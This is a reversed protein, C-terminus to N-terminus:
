RKTGMMRLTPNIIDFANNTANDDDWKSNFCKVKVNTTGSSEPKVVTTLTVPMSFLTNGSSSRIGAKQRLVETDNIEIIFMGFSDVTFTNDMYCEFTVIFGGRAFLNVGDIQVNQNFVTKPNLYNDGTTVRKTGTTFELDDFIAREKIFDAVIGGEVILPTQLVPQLELDEIFHSSVFAETGVRIKYIADVASFSPITLNGSLRRKRPGGFTSYFSGSTVYNGSADQVLVSVRVQTRFYETIRVRDGSAAGFGVSVASNGTEHIETYESPDLIRGGVCVELTNPDFDGIPFRSQGATATFTYSASISQPGM